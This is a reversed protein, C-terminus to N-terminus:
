RKKQPTHIWILATRLTPLSYKKLIEDPLYEDINQVCTDKLIKCITHYIWKSTVGKSEPYVPYGYQETNTDNTFLSDSLDIPLIDEKSIEPNTLTLGYTSNESVKGTVKVLAGETLMKALYPQHFWIINIRGTIDSITASGMPIKSKFGKKTKLNSIEGLITVNEGDQLTNIHRIDSIDTYRTPFFYLIDKITILGLKSLAKKQLDNIRFNNELKDTLKM